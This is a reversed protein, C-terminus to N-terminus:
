EFILDGCSTYFAAETASKHVNIALPLGSQLQSLTVDLTTVSSGDVVSTLPYKVTGVDPCSGVHIHAPQPTDSPGGLTNVMVTVKGDQEVLSVTGTEGSDNQEFLVVSLQKAPEIENLTPESTENVQSPTKQMKFVFVFYAAVVLLVLAFLAIMTKNMLDM